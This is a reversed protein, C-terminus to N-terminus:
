IAELFLEATEPRGRQPPAVKVGIVRYRVSVGRAYWEDNMRLRVRRGLMLPPVPTREDLRVTIEPIVVVGLAQRLEARARWNLARKSTISSHESTLDIRPWGDKLLEPAIYVRSVVPRAEQGADSPPSGGRARSTTGARTGDGPVSYGLISGPRDFVLDDNGSPLRPAGLRLRKVRAGTEPDRFVAIHYEFSDEGETLQKFAEDVPTEDGDRWNIKRRYPSEEGGLTVGIDGGEDSQVYRWLARAIELPDENDFSMNRRIRRRAAYSDFTAAQIALSMTGKDDSNLTTTWLIGGWWLDGGRELYVATRGERIQRVRQALETGPLPITGTLSGPRGIYDDLSVDRLPLVDIPRDTLLDCFLVRYPTGAATM